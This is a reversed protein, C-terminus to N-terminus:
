CHQTQASIDLPCHTFRGHDHLAWMHFFSRYISSRIDIESIMDLVFCLELIYLKVKQCPLFMLIRMVDICVHKCYLTNNCTVVNKGFFM